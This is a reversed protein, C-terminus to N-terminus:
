QNNTTGGLNGLNGLNQNRQKEFARKTFITAEVIFETPLHITKM